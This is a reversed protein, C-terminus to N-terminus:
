RQHGEHISALLHQGLWAKQFFCLVLQPIMPGTPAFRSGLWWTNGFSVHQCSFLGLSVLEPNNPFSRICWRTFWFRLSQNCHIWRMMLWFLRFKENTLGAFCPANGDKCGVQFINALGVNDVIWARVRGICFAPAFRLIKDFCSNSEFTTTQWYHASFGCASTQLSFLRKLGFLPNAQLIGALGGVVARGLGSNQAFWGEAM